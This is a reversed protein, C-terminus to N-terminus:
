GQLFSAVFSKTKAFFLPCTQVQTQSRKRQRSDEGGDSVGTKAQTHELERKCSLSVGYEFTFIQRAVTM